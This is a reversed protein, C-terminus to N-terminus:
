LIITFFHFSGAVVGFQGTLDDGSLIPLGLVFQKAPKRRADPKIAPTMKPVLM